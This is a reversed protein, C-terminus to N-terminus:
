SSVTAESVPARGSEDGEDLLRGVVHSGIFGAGGVVVYRTM